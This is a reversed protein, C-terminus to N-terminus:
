AQNVENLINMTLYRYANSNTFWQNILWMVIFVYLPFTYKKVWFSPSLDRLNLKPLIVCLIWWWVFRHFKHSLTGGSCNIRQKCWGDGCFRYTKGKYNHIQGIWSALSYHEEFIIECFDNVCFNGRKFFMKWNQKVIELIKLGDTLLSVELKRRM